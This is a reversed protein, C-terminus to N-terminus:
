LNFIEPAAVEIPADAYWPWPCDLDGLAHARALESERAHDHELDSDLIEQTMLADMTAFSMGAEVEFESYECGHSCIYAPKTVAIGADAPVEM